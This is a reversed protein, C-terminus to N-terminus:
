HEPAAPRVNDRARYLFLRNVNAEQLSSPARRRTEDWEGDIVRQRAEEAESFGDCLIEEFPQWTPLPFRGSIVVANESLNVALSKELERLMDPVLFLM